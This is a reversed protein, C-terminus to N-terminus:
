RYNVLALQMLHLSEHGMKDSTRHPVLQSYDPFVQYSDSKEGKMGSSDPLAVRGPGQVHVQVNEAPAVM